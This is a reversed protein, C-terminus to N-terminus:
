EKEQFTINITKCYAASVMDGPKRKASSSISLSSPELHRLQNMLSETGTRGGQGSEDHEANSFSTM